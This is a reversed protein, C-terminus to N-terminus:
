LYIMMKIYDITLKSYKLYLIKPQKKKFHINSIDLDAKQLIQLIDEKKITSNDLQKIIFKDLRTGPTILLSLHNAVM